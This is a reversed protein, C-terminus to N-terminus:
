ATSDNSKPGRRMPASASHWLTSNAASERRALRGKAPHVNSRAPGRGGGTRGEQAGGVPLDLPVTTTGHRLVSYRLLARKGGSYYVVLLENPVETWVKEVTGRRRESFVIRGDTRVHRVVFGEQEELSSVCLISDAVGKFALGHEGPWKQTRRATGSAVDVAYLELVQTGENPWDWTAVYLTSGRRHVAYADRYVRAGQSSMNVRHPVSRAAGTRADLMVLRGADVCVTERPGTLCARLATTFPDVLMEARHQKLDIRVLREDTPTPEARGVGGGEFVYSAAIYLSGPSWALPAFRWSADDYHKKMEVSELRQAETLDLSPSPMGTVATASGDLGILFFQTHSYVVLAEPCLIARVYRGGLPSDVLRIKRPDTQDLIAMAPRSDRGELLFAQHPFTGIKPVESCTSTKPLEVAETRSTKLDLRYVREDLQLYLFRPVEDAYASGCCALRCLVVLLVFRMRM